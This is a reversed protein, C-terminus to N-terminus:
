GAIEMAVISSHSSISTASGTGSFYWTQGQPNIKYRYTVASTTSPTDLTMANIPYAPYNGYQTYTMVYHTLNNQTGGTGDAIAQESNSGIQRYLQSHAQYGGNPGGMQANVIVLIKSSTASPTITVNCGTDTFGNTGYSTRGRVATEVVQLVKGGSPAAWSLTGSGNTTLVEDADGDDAPFTLTVNSGVTAPAKLAIYNSSDSDALRLEQQANLTVDGTFTAGTLSAKGSDLGVITAMTIEEDSGGNDRIIADAKIKGYAM